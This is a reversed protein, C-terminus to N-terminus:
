PGCGVSGIITTGAFAPAQMKHLHGSRDDQLHGASVPADGKHAQLGALAMNIRQEEAQWEIM